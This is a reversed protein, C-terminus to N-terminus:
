PQRSTEDEFLFILGALASKSYEICSPAQQLLATM